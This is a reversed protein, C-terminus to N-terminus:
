GNEKGNVGMSYQESFQIGSIYYLNCHYKTLNNSDINLPSNDKYYTNYLKLVHGLRNCVDYNYNRDGAEPFFAPLIYYSLEEM